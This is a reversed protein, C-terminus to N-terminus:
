CPNPYYSMYAPCGHEEYTGCWNYGCTAPQGCTQACTPDCSWGPGNRSHCPAVCTDWASHAHVTGGEKAERSPAFSEVELKDLELKMKRM